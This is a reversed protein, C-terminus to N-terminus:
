DEIKLAKMIKTLKEEIKGIKEEFKMEFRNIVHKSMAILSNKTDEIKEEIEEFKLNSSTRLNNLNDEIAQLKTVQNINSYKISLISNQIDLITDNLNTLRENVGTFKSTCRMVADKINNKVGSLTENFSPCQPESKPSQPKFNDIKDVNSSFNQSKISEAPVIPSAPVSTTLITDPVTSIEELSRKMQDAQFFQLKQEFYNVFKSKKVEIELVNLKDKFDVSNLSKSEIELKRITQDIALYDADNCRGIASKILGHIAMFDNEIKWDICSNSDLYLFRLKVLNDFVNFDIFSIKNGSLHILELNSNFDFLGNELVDLQNNNLYLEVLKPHAKLDSQHVVKLGCDSIEIGKLNKFVKELGRPFYFTMKNPIYLGTVDNNTGNNLHSGTIQDIYASDITFINVPNQVHCYYTNHIVIWSQSQFQCQLTVSDSTDLHLMSLILLLNIVKTM